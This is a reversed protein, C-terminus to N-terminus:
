FRERLRRDAPTPRYIGRDILRPVVEDIFERIAASGASFM